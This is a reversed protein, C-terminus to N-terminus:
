ADLEELLLKPYLRPDAENLDNLVDLGVSRRGENFFTSSKGTFSDSYVDCHSLVRWVFRRGEGTEMITRIDNQLLDYATKEPDKKDSM